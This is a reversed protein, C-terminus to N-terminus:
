LLPRRLLCSIRGFESSRGVASTFVDSSLRLGVLRSGAPHRERAFQRCVSRIPFLRHGDVGRTGFCQHSSWASFFGRSGLCVLSLSYTYPGSGTAGITGNGIQGQAHISGATGIALIASLLTKRVASTTTPPILHSLFPKGMPKRKAKPKQCIPRRDEKLPVALL